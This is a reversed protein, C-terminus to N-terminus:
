AIEMMDYFMLRTEDGEEKKSLLSFGNKEYFPIASLYADVTLYRFASRGPDARLIKKIGDMVDSGISKGQCSKSVAFRGIKISPYSNFRKGKPFRKVVKKWQSGTLENRSIKDNLLSFYALVCGDDELIFTKAIQLQVCSISDSRLFDNLDEDGCDFKTLDYNPM